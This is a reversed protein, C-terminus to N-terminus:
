EDKRKSDFEGTVAKMAYEKDSDEKPKETEIGAESDGGLQKHAALEEERQLLAERRDNEVKLKERAEDALRVAEPVKSQVGDDSNETPKEEPSKKEEDM